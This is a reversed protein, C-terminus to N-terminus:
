KTRMLSVVDTESPNSAITPLGLFSPAAPDRHVSFSAPGVHPVRIFTDKDAGALSLQIRHGAQLRVAAPLLSFTVQEVEGPIMPRLDAAAYSRHPGGTAPDANTPHPRHIVRLQGETLYTVSGDPSVDDLYVVLAIDDRSSSILLSMMPTGVVLMDQELPDTLYRLLNQTSERRDRYAVPGGLQTTWRTEGSCGADFDVAYSDTGAKSPAFTLRGNAALYLQKTKQSAPPWVESARWGGENLTYYTVRRPPSPTEIDWLHRDLFDRFLKLQQDHPPNPDQYPLEYPNGNQGAGHSWAGIIVEGPCRCDKFWRIAGAATGADMWSAWIFTPIQNRELDAFRGAISPRQSGDPQVYFSDKVLPTTRAAEIYEPVYFNGGHEAIAAQLLKGDTDSDVPAVGKIRVGSKLPPFVSADGEDLKRVYEGWRGIFMANPLGGPAILDEYLDIDVFRAVVAKLAPSPHTAAMLATNAVYSIGMTAVRGNSWPQRAIWDIIERCDNVEAQPLEVTRVGFSAGTGRADVSVYTYGWEALPKREDGPHVATPGPGDYLRERWYRTFAVVAPAPPCPEPPLWVSVAIRVGDSMAVHLSARRRGDELTQFSYDEVQPM